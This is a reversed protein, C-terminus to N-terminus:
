IWGREVVLALAVIAIFFWRVNAREMEDIARNECELEQETM